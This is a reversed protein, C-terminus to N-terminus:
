HPTNAEILAEVLPQEAPFRWVLGGREDARKWAVDRIELRDRPQMAVDGVNECWYIHFGNDLVQLLKVPRVNLGTEERTERAATCAAREGSEATGGPISWSDDRRQQVMALADQAVVLCGANGVSKDQALEGCDVASETCGATLVAMLMMVAAQKM